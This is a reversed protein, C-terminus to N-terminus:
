FNSGNWGWNPTGFYAVYINQGPIGLEEQYIKCLEATMRDSAGADVQGLVRVSIFAGQELKKGGMYLEYQDEFGLMLYNESKGMIGIAQGLKKKISEEKDQTLKTTVKSDIFPM